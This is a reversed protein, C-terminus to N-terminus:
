KDSRLAKIKLKIIRVVSENLREESISGSNVANLVGDYALTFDEPMLLIDSGAEFANVAAEDAGLIDTLAGMSLSDTIVVGKYGLKERLIDNIIIPSISAPLNDGTINPLSIHGVMILQAGANVADKFPVLESQEIEELTKDTYAFGEHTDGTTAGHGPFHKFCSIIGKDNLGESLSIAMQSVTNPDQGFSRDKVVTNEPNTLVDAVPAFDVNFGYDALYAGIEAGTDYAKQPDGGEGIIKMDPIAPIDLGEKGSLRAVTGGEEDVGIFLPVKCVKEGYAKTDKIMKKTQKEDTINSSFYIIGGVPYASLADKFTEDCETMSEEYTLAEPAVFFLQAVKEELSMNDIIEKAENEILTDTDPATAEAGTTDEAGGSSPAYSCGGALLLVAFLFLVSIISTKNKM